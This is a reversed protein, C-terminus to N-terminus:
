NRKVARASKCYNKDPTFGPNCLQCAQEGNGPCSNGIKPLGNYCICANYSINPECKGSESAVRFVLNRITFEAQKDDDAENGATVYVNQQFKSTTDM